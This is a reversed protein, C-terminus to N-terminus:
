RLKQQISIAPTIGLYAHTVASFDIQTKKWFLSTGFAIRLPSTSIGTRFQIQDIPSYELGSAFETGRDSGKSIQTHMKVKSSIRITSGLKLHSPIETRQENNWKSKNPNSISVGLTFGSLPTSTCGISGLWASKSKANESNFISERREAQIGLNLKPSIKIAYSLRFDQEYFHKTGNRSAHFAIGHVSKVPFVGAINISKYGPILFTSEAFIGITSKTISVIQAPNESSSLGDDITASIGAVGKSRASLPTQAACDIAVTAYTAILTSCLFFKM